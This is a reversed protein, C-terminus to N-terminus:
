RHVLLSVALQATEPTGTNTGVWSSIMGALNVETTIWNFLEQIWKYIEATFSAEQVLPDFWSSIFPLSNLAYLISLITFVVIAGKLIGFLGGLLRDLGSIARSKTIADFLKSLLFVALRIAVFLLIATVVITALAGLSNGISAALTDASFETPVFPTILSKLIPSANIGSIVDDRTMGETVTPLIGSSSLAEAISTGFNETLHWWSDLIKAVPQAFIIAVILSAINGFLSLLTRLFGKVLGAILFIGLIVLVIIDLINM